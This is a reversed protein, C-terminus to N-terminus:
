NSRRQLHQWILWASFCLKAPWAEMQPAWITESLCRDRYDPGAVRYLSFPAPDATHQIMSQFFFFFFSCMRMEEKFARYTKATIIRPRSVAHSSIFPLIFFRLPKLKHTNRLLALLPLEQGQLSGCLKLPGLALTRAANIDAGKVNNSKPNQWKTQKQITKQPWMKIMSVFDCVLSKFPSSHIQLTATPWQITPQQFLAM